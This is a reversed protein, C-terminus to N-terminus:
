LANIIDIMEKAAHDMGNLLARSIISHGISFEDIESLGKFAKITKYCLGRGVKVSVKLKHALKITDVIKIFAQHRKQATKSETYTGTHIEVISANTRHAMKLQEPSPDILLGVPIGSDQLTTVTETIDDKHVVLDMGGEATFEERKEPVLTVLDPKIDLAIGVMESTSAMELILKSQIINRLMRVDRDQIHRRDQRLHVVIGDVGALEAMVAAAVPDPFQSKRSERLMAVQDVKVALGAM